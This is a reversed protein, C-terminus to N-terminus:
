LKYILSKEKHIYSLNRSYWRVLQLLIGRKCANGLITPNNEVDFIGTAIAKCLGATFHELM